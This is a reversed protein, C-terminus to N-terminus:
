NITVVIPNAASVVFNNGNAATITINNGNDRDCMVADSSFWEFFQSLAWNSCQLTVSASGLGHDQYLTISGGTGILDDIGQNDGYQFALYEWNSPNLENTVNVDWAVIGSNVEYDTSFQNYNYSLASTKTWNFQTAASNGNGVVDTFTSGAVDITCAGDGTPTFTATYVTASSATFNSLSGNTVSIDAEAFDATGESSTFTLSLTADSSSDGDNVEAATISMTPGTGDYTWNFQTAATNDNGAADTFASGAVDITTAGDGTPTFTATYVTSSSAVFNSIAGGTVSVDSADFTTTAESSSFTLSLSGDNSSDGDNVEAATISMSPATGDYTWNFQDAANNGNGAADMYASGAVDITTAGDGTPSFTATYVTASSAAFNSIAGGSVTIDSAEFSTTAENSTFTLSLAADNSLDGDSVEAAAITMNPATIDYTWNFQTAATNGNTAADTFSSGAVDITAAGEADPTFTATYTTGSGAFASLSGNSTTVDGAVFDATSESSTFTLSLTGDNSADGDSVEAATITLTPPTGDYTWNFQEAAENLSGVLSEYVDAAVDITCAGDGTPTFTATYEDDSGAFASISGNTVTIDGAVFTITKKTSEFTLSLTAANSLDGDSLEAATITMEPAAVTAKLSDWLSFVNTVGSAIDRGELLGLVELSDLIGQHDVTIHFDDQIEQSLILTDAGANANLAHLVNSEASAANVGVLLCASALLSSIFLKM